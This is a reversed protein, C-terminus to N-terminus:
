SEEKRSSRIISDMQSAEFHRTILNILASKSQRKSASIGLRAVIEQLQSTSFPENESGLLKEIEAPAMKKLRDLMDTSLPRSSRNSTEVGQRQVGLLPSYSEISEGLEADPISRLLKALLELQCALEHIKM